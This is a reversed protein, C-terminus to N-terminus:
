GLIRRSFLTVLAAQPSSKLPFMDAVVALRCVAPRIKAGQIFLVSYDHKIIRQTKSSRSNSNAKGKGIKQIVM